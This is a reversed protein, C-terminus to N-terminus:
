NHHAEEEQDQEKQSGAQQHEFRIDVNRPFVRAINSESEERIQNSEDQNHDGAYKSCPDQVRYQHMSKIWKIEDESGRFKCFFSITKRLRRSQKTQQMDEVLSGACCALIGLLCRSAGPEEDNFWHSGFLHISTWHVGM